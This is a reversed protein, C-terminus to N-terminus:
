SIGSIPRSSKLVYGYRTYFLVLERTPFENIWQQKAGEKMPVLPPPATLLDQIEM